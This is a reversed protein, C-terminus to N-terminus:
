RSEEYIKKARNMKMKVKRHAHKIDVNIDEDRETALVVNVSADQPL